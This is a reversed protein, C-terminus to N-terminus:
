SCGGHSCLTPIRHSTLTSAFLLRHSVLRDGLTPLTWDFRCRWMFCLAGSTLTARDAAGGRGIVPQSFCRFLVEGAFKGCFIAIKSTWSEGLPGVFVNGCSNCAYPRCSRRSGKASRRLMRVARKVAYVSAVLSDVDEIATTEHRARM